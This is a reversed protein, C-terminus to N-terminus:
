IICYSGFSNKNVIILRRKWLNSFLKPGTAPEKPCPTSNEPEMFGLVKKIPQNVINECEWPVKGWPTLTLLEENASYTGTEWFVEGLPTLVFLEQNASYIGVEWLAEGLPTLALLKKNASYTGVESLVKGRSWSLLM